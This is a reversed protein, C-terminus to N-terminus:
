SINKVQKLSAELQQLENDNCYVDLVLEITSNTLRARKISSDIDRDELIKFFLKDDFVCRPFSISWRKHSKNYNIM